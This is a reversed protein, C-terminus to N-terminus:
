KPFSDPPVAIDQINGDTTQIELSYITYQTDTTTFKATTDVHRFGCSRTFQGGDWDEGSTYFIDYTGDPINSMQASEGRAVYLSGVAKGNQSLIVAADRAADNKM